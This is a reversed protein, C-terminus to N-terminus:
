WLVDQMLCSFIVRHSIWTTLRDVGTTPNFGHSKFIWCNDSQDNKHRLPGARRRKRLSLGSLSELNAMPLELRDALGMLVVPEFAAIVSITDSAGIWGAGALIKASLCNTWIRAYYLGRCGGDGAVM